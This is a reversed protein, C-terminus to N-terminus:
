DKARLLFRFGYNIDAGTDLNFSEINQKTFTIRGDHQAVNLVIRVYIAVHKIISAKQDM